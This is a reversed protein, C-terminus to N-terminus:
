CGLKFETLSLLAVCKNDCNNNTAAHDLQKHSVPRIVCVHYSAPWKSCYPTNFLLTVLNLVLSFILSHAM